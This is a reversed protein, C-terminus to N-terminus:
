EPRRVARGTRMDIVINEPTTVGFYHCFPMPHMLMPTPAGDRDPNGVIGKSITAGCSPCAGVVVGKDVPHPFDRMKALSVATATTTSKEALGLAGPITVPCRRITIAINLAHKRLLRLPGRAKTARREGVSLSAVREHTHETQLALM